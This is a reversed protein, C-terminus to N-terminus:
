QYLFSALYDFSPLSVSTLSSVAELLLFIGGRYGDLGWLAWAHPKCPSTASNLVNLAAHLFFDRNRFIM